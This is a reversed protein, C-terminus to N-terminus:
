KFTAHWRKWWQLVPYSRGRGWTMTQPGSAIRKVRGNINLCKLISTCCTSVEPYVTCVHTCQGDATGGLTLHRGKCICLATICGSHPTIDGVAWQRHAPPTFCPGQVMEHNSHNFPFTRQIGYAFRQEEFREIYTRHWCVSSPLTLCDTPQGWFRVVHTAFM